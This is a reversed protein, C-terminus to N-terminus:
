TGHLSLLQKPNFVHVKSGEAFAVNAPRADELFKWKVGYLEGYHINQEFEIIPFVRWVQHAVNYVLTEGTKTRGYGRCHEKLFHELSTAPPTFPENKALVRVFSTQGHNKLSYKGSITSPSETIEGSMECYYYPENYVMRAVLSVLRLPVLERLFIAGRKGNVKAYFRLNVEPFNIHFPIPFKYVRTQKFQFAVLSMYAKGEFFDIEADEPLFPKLIEPDVEYSVLILDTWKASLFEKGQAVGDFM